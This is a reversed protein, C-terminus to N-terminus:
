TERYDRPKTLPGQDRMFQNSVPDFFLNIRGEEGTMRQKEIFVISDPQSWDKPDEPKADREKKRNRWVVLVNDPQQIVDSSGKVDLKGPKENEDGAKRPHAVMHVHVDNNLAFTTIRNVAVRQAEYDDNPVDTKMLSDLVFYQCGFRARCYNFLELIHTHSVNGTLNLWIIRGKAWDTFSRLAERTQEGDGIWQKAMKAMQVHVPMEMSAVCISRGKCALEMIGQSLLTSKGHSTVGSWITTEGPRFRIRSGLVSIADGPLVGGDPFVLREMRNHWEEPDVIEMPSIHEAKDLLRTADITTAGARLWDNADKVGKPFKVIRCRHLGLRKAVEVSSESGIPDNDYSILIDDYAELREWEYEIWNNQNNGSGAGFPISLAPFGLTAWSLADIEGECILLQRSKPDIAQWGFLSPAANRITKIEKKGGVRKIGLYKLQVLDEKLDFSQFIIWRSSGGLKYSALVKKSIRREGALYELAKGTVPPIEGVKPRDYVKKHVPVESRIGLWEKAQVLAEAVPIGRVAAWLDLADGSQNSAFDAWIGAKDGRLHVKLSKGREGSVSGAEWEPGVEKGGPLLYRCLEAIRASLAESVTAASHKM